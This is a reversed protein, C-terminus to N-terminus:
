CLDFIFESFLEAIKGRIDVSPKVNEDKLLFYKAYNLSTKTSSNKYGNNDVWKGNQKKVGLIDAVENEFKTKRDGSWNENPNANVADIFKSSRGLDSAEGYYDILADSLLGEGVLYEDTIITADIDAFVDAETCSKFSQMVTEFGYHNDLNKGDGEIEYALTQLDGGWSALDVVFERELPFPFAINGISLTFKYSGDISAFMHILDIKRSPKVPDRFYRMTYDSGRPHESYNGAHNSKGWDAGNVFQSFYFGCEQTADVTSCFLYDPLGAIAAWLLGKDFTDESFIGAYNENFSRLYGLVHNNVSTPQWLNSLASKAIAWNEVNKIKSTLETLGTNAFASETSSATPGALVSLALPIVEFLASM